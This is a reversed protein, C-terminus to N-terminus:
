FIWGLGLEFKDAETDAENSRFQYNAKVVVNSLPKYNLGVTTITKELSQDQTQGEEVEEHLNYSEHSVFLPLTKASAGNIVKMLDYSLMGYYGSVKEGMVPNGTVVTRIKDVDSLQGQAYLALFEFGRAKYTAHVEALKINADGLTDNGQSTNGTYYSGGVSFDQLSNSDLRLVYSFDEAKAEAGKQRSKRIWSSKSFGDADGSNVLGAYYHVPGVDGYALVGNEHWTSPIINKEVEPRQVTPFVTPEHLMNILGVPILLHGARLKFSESILFDLYAFEIIAEGTGAGANAGGHEFEIEANFVLDDSFRYGIYPVLRYADTTDTGKKNDTFVVEGYGGISLPSKSYYVKSAAVGMGSYSEHTSEPVAVQMKLNALEDTLAQANQKQQRELADLRSKLSDIEPNAFAPLALSLILAVLSKAVSIM